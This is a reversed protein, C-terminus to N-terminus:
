ARLEDPTWPFEVRGRIQEFFWRLPARSKGKTSNDILLFATFLRWEHIAELLRELRPESFSHKHEWQRWLAFPEDHWQAMAQLDADECFEALFARAQSAHSRPDSIAVGSVADAKFTDHVHILLRLKPVEDAFLQPALTALNRELEEIHARVTGEPHGSRPKGWDLNSQYRPDAQVRQLIDVYDISLTGKM